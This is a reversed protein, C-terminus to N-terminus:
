KDSMEIEREGARKLSNRYLPLVPLLIMAALSIAARVGFRGGAAGIVPGGSMQGLADVQSRFSLVTARVKSDVFQNTWMDQIPFTLARCIDFVLLVAVALPFAQAWAFLVLSAIMLGYLWQLMRVSQRMDKLNLGRKAVENLVISIGTMMFKIIGFWIVPTLGYLIPFTFDDLLHKTWLRDYGESYLGVFLGILMFDRLIPRRRVLAFGDRLTTRMETWTEREARPTPTFGHEPMWGILFIGLGLILVAGTIIPTQLGFGALGVSVPIGILGGARAFQGARIFVKGINEAGVEDTIWAQHAGSTFTFGLGWLASAFVIAPFTPIAQILYAIGTIFIGIIVSLRRSFVDAVVGTPIEFIFASVELATGVLVLQLASLHAAQVQYIMNVTWIITFAFDLWFAHTFYVTTPPLKRM